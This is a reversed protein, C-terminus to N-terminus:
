TPLLFYQLSVSMFPSLVRSGGGRGTQQQALPSVVCNSLIKPLRVKNSGIQLPPPDGQYYIVMQILLLHLSM